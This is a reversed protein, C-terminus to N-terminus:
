RKGLHWVDFRTSRGSLSHTPARMGAPLPARLPRKLVVRRTGSACASAWLSDVEDKPQGSAEALASLVRLNGAGLATKGRAPYMPDLYVATFPGGAMVLWDRSDVGYLRIREAVEPERARARRLGDALLAAVLPQRELLHVRAGAAALLWADLGLGATADVVEPVKDRLVGCARVLREQRARRGRFGASGSTWDILLRANDYWLALGDNAFVLRWASGPEHQLPTLWPLLAEPVADPLELRVPVAATM